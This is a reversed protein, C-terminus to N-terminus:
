GRDRQKKKVQNINAYQEKKSLKAKAKQQKLYHKDFDYYGAAM